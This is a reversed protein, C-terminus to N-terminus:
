KKAGKKGKEVPKKEEIGLLSNKNKDFKLINVDEVLFTYAPKEPNRVWFKNGSAENKRGVIIQKSNGGKINFTLVVEPSAFGMASDTLAANDEYEAARFDAATNLIEDVVETKAKASDPQTLDWQILTGATDTKKNLVFTNGGQKNLVIKDVLNKDFKIISKDRWRNKDTFFAYKISGGVSYVDNSGLPRVFTSTYDPGNKGIRFAGMSAGKEDFVDVFMGKASDVEFVSQKEPNQSILESKTMGKLKELLTQISASDAPYDKKISSLQGQAPGSALSAQEPQSSASPDGAVVWVEGKRKIRVSDTGSVMLISSCANESFTPFFKLTKAAQKPASLKNAAIILAVVVLLAVTLWLLKKGNM